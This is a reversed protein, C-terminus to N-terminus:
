KSISCDQTLYVNTVYTTAPQICEGIFTSNMYEYLNRRHDFCGM